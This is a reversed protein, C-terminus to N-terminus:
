QAGATYWCLPPCPSRCLGRAGPAPINHFTGPLPPRPPPPPPLLPGCRNPSPPALAPAPPPTHARGAGAGPHVSGGAREAPPHLLDERGAALRAGGEGEGAPRHLDGSQAQHLGPRVQLGQLSLRVTLPGKGTGTRHSGRRPCFRLLSDPPFLLLLPGGQRQGREGSVPM